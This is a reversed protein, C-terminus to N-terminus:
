IDIIQKELKNRAAIDNSDEPHMNYLAAKAEAPQHAGRLAREFHGLGSVSDSPPSLLSDLKKEGRQASFGNRWFDTKIIANLPDAINFVTTQTSVYFMEVLIFTALLGLIVKRRATTQM